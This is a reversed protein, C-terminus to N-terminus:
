AQSRIKQELSAVGANLQEVARAIAAEDARSRPISVHMVAVGAGEANRILRAISMGGSTFEAVSIAYGQMQVRRIEERLRMPDVITTESFAIFDTRGIYDELARESLGALFARSAAGAYLPIPVGIQQSQVIANVAEIADVNFRYDGDRVSLLVAENLKDRISQMIPRALDRLTVGQLVASALGLPLVGLRYNSTEANQTVMGEGVLTALIRFATPKSLNARTAVDMLSSERTSTSLAFLIRAARDVAEITHDSSGGNTRADQAKGTAAEVPRTMRQEM